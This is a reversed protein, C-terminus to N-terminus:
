CVGDQLIVTYYLKTHRPQGTRPALPRRAWLSVPQHAQATVVVVVLEGRHVRQHVVEVRGQVFRGAGIAALEGHGAASLHFISSAHQSSSFFTLFRGSLYPYSHPSKLTICTGTGTTFNKTQPWHGM